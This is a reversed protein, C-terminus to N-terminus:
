MCCRREYKQCVSSVSAPRLLSHSFRTIGLLPYKDEYPKDEFWVRGEMYKSLVGLLSFM